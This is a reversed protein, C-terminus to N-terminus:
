ENKIIGKKIFNTLDEEKVLSFSGDHNDIWHITDGESWGAEALLEPPFTLIGDGSVSDEEVTLVWSKM